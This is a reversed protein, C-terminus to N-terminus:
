KYFIKQSLNLTIITGKNNRVQPNLKTPFEKLKKKNGALNLIKKKNTGYFPNKIYGTVKIGNNIIKVQEIIQNSELKKAEELVRKRKLGTENAIEQVTKIRKKGTHIADFVKRRDVSRGIVEAAHVIQDNPNSRIDSTNIISM